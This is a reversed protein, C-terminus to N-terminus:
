FAIRMLRVHSDHSISILDVKPECIPGKPTASSIQEWWYRALLIRPAEGVIDNRGM